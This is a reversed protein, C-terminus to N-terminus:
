NVALVGGNAVLKNPGRELTITGNVFHREYIEQYNGYRQLVRYSWNSDLGLETGFSGKVGLLKQVEPNLTTSAIYDVNQANIDRRESEMLTHAYFQM